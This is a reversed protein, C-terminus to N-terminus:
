IGKGGIGCRVQLYIIVIEKGKAMHICRACLRNSCCSPSFPPFYDRLGSVEWAEISIAELILM